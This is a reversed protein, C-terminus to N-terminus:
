KQGLIEKRHEQYFKSREAPDDIANYREIITLDSGDPKKGAPTQRVLPVTATLKEIHETLDAVSLKEIAAASLTVVKGAQSASALLAAKDRKTLETTLSATLATVKGELAEAKAGFEKVAGMDDLRKTIAALSAAIADVQDKLEKLEMGPGKQKPELDVTFFHLDDVAGHRCLAASHIGKVEFTDPDLSLAPSLDIYERANEIGSPTYLLDTLFLGEGEVVEPVGFAAVKRPETTRKWEPSNEVTNHEYDLAVRDWGMKRQVSPLASLTARTVRVPRGNVNANDGWNLLKIRSPLKEGSLAGNSIKFCTLKM